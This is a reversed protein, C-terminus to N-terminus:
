VSVYWVSKGFKKFKNRFKEDVAKVVGPHHNIYDHGAIIGGDKIKPLYANIDRIVDKYEHSADIFCFDISKDKYQNACEWSLGKVLNVDVGLSLIISLNEQVQEINPINKILPDYKDFLDILDLSIKKNSNFIEVAMFAASKGHYCGVEVFKSGDPFTKVQKFYFEKYDFWGELNEYFHKM